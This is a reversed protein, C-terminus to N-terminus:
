GPRNTKRRVSMGLPPRSNRTRPGSV